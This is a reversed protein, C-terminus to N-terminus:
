KDHLICDARVQDLRLHQEIAGAKRRALDVALRAGIQILRDRRERGGLTQLGWLTGTAVDAVMITEGSTEFKRGPNLAALLAESMHFKDALQERVGTYALM